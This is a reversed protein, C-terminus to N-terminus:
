REAQQNETEKPQEEREKLGRFFPRRQQIMESSRDASFEPKELETKRKPTEAGILGETHCLRATRWLFSNKVWLWKGKEPKWM